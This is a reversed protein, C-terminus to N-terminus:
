KPNTALITDIVCQHKWEQYTTSACQQPERQNWRNAGLGAFQSPRPWFGPASVAPVAFSTILKWPPWQKSQRPILRSTPPSSHNGERGKSEEGDRCKGAGTFNGKYRDMLKSPKARGRREGSGSLTATTMPSHLCTATQIGPQLWGVVVTDASILAIKLHNEQYKIVQKEVTKLFYTKVWDWLVLKDERSLLYCELRCRVM